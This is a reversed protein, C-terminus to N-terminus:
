KFSVPVTLINSIREEQGFSLFIFITTNGIYKRYEEKILDPDWFFEHAMNGYLSNIKYRSLWDKSGPSFISTIPFRISGRENALDVNLDSLLLYYIIGDGDIISPKRELGKTSIFYGLLFKEGSRLPTTKNYDVTISSGDGSIINPTVKANSLLVYEKGEPITVACGSIFIIVAFLFLLTYHFISRKCFITTM